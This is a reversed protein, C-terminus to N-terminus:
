SWNYCDNMVLHSFVGDWRSAFLPRLILDLRYTQPSVQSPILQCFSVAATLQHRIEMFVNRTWPFKLTRKFSKFRTQGSISETELVEDESCWHILAGVKLWGGGWGQRGKLKQSKKTSKHNLLRQKPGLPDRQTERRVKLKETFLQDANM